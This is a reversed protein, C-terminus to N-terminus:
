LFLLSNPRGRTMELMAERQEQDLTKILSAMGRFAESNFEQQRADIQERMQIVTELDVEAGSLAARLAEEGQALDNVLARRAERRQKLFDRFARSQAESLNLREQVQKFVKPGKGRGPGPGGLERNGPKEGGRLSARTNIEAELARISAIADNRSKLLAAGLGINLAILGVIIIFLLRTMRRAKNSVALFRSLPTPPM